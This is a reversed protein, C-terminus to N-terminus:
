MEPRGLVLNDYINGQLLERSNMLRIEGTAPNIETKTRPDVEARKIDEFNRQVRGYPTNTSRSIQRLARPAPVFRNPLNAQQVEAKLSACTEGAKSIQEQLLLAQYRAEEAPPLKGGYAKRQLRLSTLESEWGLDEQNPILGSPDTANLPNGASYAYPKLTLAVARDRSIFQGTAPEYYRARLYYMGSEADLYEGAFRLPNTITGTSAVLNGYPDYTHTAQSTGSGDTILRSSGIQDHHLWVATSGNVQELPLGGPGYIYATSGDKLLLPINNAVDWLYQTTSGGVTKSMRLGDGNYRYTASPGYGTLRNAQDYTLNTTPGGPPTTSTRNGRTDYSYTTAGVPPTACVGSTSATWCLQDASNFVQQTSGMQILNDAADYGYATAGTPPASCETASSSGAYCLQNLATYKYAGKTAPASTDSTLQNANYWV